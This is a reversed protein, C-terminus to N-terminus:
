RNECVVLENGKEPIESKIVNYYSAGEPVNNAVAYHSGFLGIEDTWYTNHHPWSEVISGVNETSFETQLFNVLHSASQPLLLGDGQEGCAKEAEDPTLLSYSIIAKDKDTFNGYNDSYFIQSTGISDTEIISTQDTTLPATYFPIVKITLDKYQSEGAMDGSVTLITDGYHLGKLEGIGTIEVLSTDDVSWSLRPDNTIDINNGNSLTALVQVDRTREAVVYDKDVLKLDFSLVVADTVTLETSDTILTGDVDYSAIIRTLGSSEGMVIGTKAGVTAITPFESTWSINPNTTVDVNSTGDTLTATAIFSQSYGDPVETATSTVKISSVVASTITLNAVGTLTIGNYMGSATITVDGTDMGRALGNADITAITPDDSHWDIAADATVDLISGDSLTATAIYQQTLGNALSMAGPTVSLSTVTTNDTVNLNATGTVLNSNSTITATVSVSGVSIGKAIGKGGPTNNVTAVSANDTDWRVDTTIDRSIGDSLIGTAVFAKTFGVPTTEIMPTVKISSVFSNNVVVIVTDTLTIGGAVGTATISVPGAILGKVLGQDDVTAVNTDSSTWTVAPNKTVNIVQGDDLILDAQLQQTLGTPIDTRKPTVVLASASMGDTDIGNDFAGEAETHCGQILSATILAVSLMVIRKIM